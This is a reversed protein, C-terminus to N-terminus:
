LSGEEVLGHLINEETDQNFLHIEQPVFRIDLNKGATIGQTSSETVMRVLNEGIRIHAIQETGILEKLLVEGSATLLGKKEPVKIFQPRIGLMIKNPCNREKLLSAAKPPVPISMASSKLFLHSGEEQAEVPLFNMPPTGIFKAVFINAPKQFVVEPEDFQQVRGQLMVAIKTSLTLAELQDHTVYITTVGLQQHLRKIEFRMQERLAADLNSLPEDLLFVKPKRIIARGLAVRQRQGGSLQAPKNYLLESINLVKAIERIRKEREERPVGAIKLGYGINEAVNLHPFVAYNQFVMSIDRKQPPLCDVRLDNFYIEGETPMELGAIMRLITTKGCGSPGVLSVFEKEKVELNIHDVAVVEHKLFGKFKKVLNNLRLKAL